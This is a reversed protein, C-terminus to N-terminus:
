TVDKWGNCVSGFLGSVLKVAIDYLSSQKLSRIQYFTASGEENKITAHYFTALNQM